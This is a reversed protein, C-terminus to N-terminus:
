TRRKWVGGKASAEKVGENSSHRPKKKSKPMKVERFLKSGKKEQMVGFENVVSFILRNSYKYQDLPTLSLKTYENDLDTWKTQLAEVGRKRILASFKEPRIGEDKYYNAAVHRVYQNAIWLKKDIEVLLVVHAGEDPKVLGQHIVLAMKEIPYGAEKLLLYKFVAYDKCVVGGRKIGKLPSFYTGDTGDVYPIQNAILNALAVKDWDTPENMVLKVLMDWDQPKSDEHSSLAREFKAYHFDNTVKFDNIALMAPKLDAVDEASAATTATALAFALAAAIKRIRRKDMNENRRKM